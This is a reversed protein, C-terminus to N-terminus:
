GNDKPDRVQTSTWLELAMGRAKPSNGSTSMMIRMSRREKAMSKEKRGTVMTSRTRATTSTSGKAMSKIMQGTGKTSM